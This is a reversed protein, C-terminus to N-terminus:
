PSVTLIVTSNFNVGVNKVPLQVQGANPLIRSVAPFVTNCLRRQTPVLVSSRAPGSVQVIRLVRLHGSSEGRPIPFEPNWKISQM